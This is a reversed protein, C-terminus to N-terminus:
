HRAVRCWSEPNGVLTSGIMLEWDRCPCYLTRLCPPRQPRKSASWAPRTTKTRAPTTRVAVARRFAAATAQLVAITSNTDCLPPLRHSSRSSM